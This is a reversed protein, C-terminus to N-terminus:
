AVPRWLKAEGPRLGNRRPQPAESKFGLLAGIFSLNLCHQLDNDIHDIDTVRNLHDYAFETATGNGYDIRGVMGNDYYTYTAEYVPGNGTGSAPGKRVYSVRDQEDFVYLTDVDDHATRM